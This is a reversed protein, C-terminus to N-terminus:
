LGFKGTVEIKSGVKFDIDMQKYVNQWIMCPMSSNEDKIPFYVAASSASPAKCIEGVVTINVNELVDNALSLAQSVSFFDPKVEQDVGASSYPVLNPNNIDYLSM